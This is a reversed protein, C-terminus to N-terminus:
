VNPTIYVTGTGSATKFALKNGATLSVRYPLGGVLFQDTGDALAVPAAGQRMFCDVSPTVVAMVANIAASAASVTSIAVGQSDGGATAKLSLEMNQVDM